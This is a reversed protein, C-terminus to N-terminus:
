ELESGSSERHTESGEPFSVINTLVQGFDSDRDIVEISKNHTLNASLELKLQDQIWTSRVNRVYVLDGPKLKKVQDIHKNTDTDKQKSYVFVILCKEEPEAFTTMHYSLYNHKSGDYLQFVWNGYHGTEHPFGRVEGVIDYFDFVDPNSKRVIDSFKTFKPINIKPPDILEDRSESTQSSTPVLTKSEGQPSEQNRKQSRTVIPYVRMRKSQQNNNLKDLSTSSDNGDTSSRKPAIPCNETLKVGLVSDPEVSRLSRGNELNASLNFRRLSSDVKVNTALFLDGPRLRQAVEYHTNDEKEKVKPFVRLVREDPGNTFDVELNQFQDQNITKVQGAVAFYYNGSGLEKLNALKSHFLLELQKRRVDDEDKLTPDRSSHYPIPEYKAAPWVVVSNPHSVEPIQGIKLRHVRVVDGPRAKPYEDLSGNLKIQLGTSTEDSLMWFTNARGRVERVMLGYIHCRSVEPSLSHTLAKVENLSLVPPSM